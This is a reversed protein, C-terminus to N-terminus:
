PLVTIRVKIIGADTDAIDSFASRSLDIIRGQVFPGRDNIKVTTSKNNALNTVKVKTGFPLTRHAATSSLHNYREGSATTSFQYSMAYFSAEGVETFGVDQPRSREPVSSCGSVIFFVALCLFAPRLPLFSM